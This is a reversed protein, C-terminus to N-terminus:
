FRPGWHRFDLASLGDRGFDTLDADTRIGGDDHLGHGVGVCGVRGRGDLLDGLEDFGAGLEDADGDVVVGGRFGDRVDDFAEGFATDVNGDDAVEVVVAMLEEFPIGGARLVEGLVADIGAVDGDAAFVIVIEAGHDLAGDFILLGDADADVPTGEVLSEEGAEHVFVRLAGIGCWRAVHHEFGHAAAGEIGGGGGFMVAEAVVLDDDAAFDGADAVEDVDVLHEGGAAIVREVESEGFGAHAHFADDGGGGTECRKQECADAVGDTDGERGFGARAAGFFDKGRLLDQLREADAAEGRLDGGAPTSSSLSATIPQTTLPGPSDFCALM